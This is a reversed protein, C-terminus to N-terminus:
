FAFAAKITANFIYNQSLVSDVFLNMDFGIQLDSFINLTSDLSGYYGRFTFLKNETNVIDIDCKVEFKSYFPGNYFVISASPLLCDSLIGGDLPNKEVLTVSSYPIFIGNFDEKGSAYQVGLNINVFSLPYWMLDLSSFNMIGKFEKTGFTTQLQYFLKSYIPGDLAITAFYKNGVNANNGCNLSGLLQFTLNQNAFLSPFELSFICPILPYQFKYFQVVDKNDYGEIETSNLSNTLGTYGVYGSLGVISSNFKLYAGDSTASFINNTKDSVIFRGLSVDVSSKKFAFQGSFKLLSLDFINQFVPEDDTKVEAIYAVESNLKWNGKESLPNSLWIYLGNKQKFAFATDENASNNVKYEGKSKNNLLGGWEFAFGKTLILFISCFVVFSKKM